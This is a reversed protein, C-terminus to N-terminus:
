RSTRLYYNRLCAQIFNSAAQEATKGVSLMSITDNNSLIENVQPILLLTTEVGIIDKLANLKTVLLASVAAKKADAGPAYISEENLTISGNKQVTVSDGGRNGSGAFVSSSLTLLCFLAVFAKM